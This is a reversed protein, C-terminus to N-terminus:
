PKSPKEASPKEAPKAPEAAAAPKSELAALRALVDGIQDSLRQNANASRALDSQVDAYADRARGLESTLEDVKARLAGVEDPAAAHAVEEPEPLPEPSVKRLNKAFLHRHVAKLKQVWEPVGQLLTRPPFDFTKGNAGGVVLRMDTVNEIMAGASM